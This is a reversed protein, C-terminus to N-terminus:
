SYAKGEIMAIPPNRVYDCPEDYRAMFQVKGTGIQSAQEQVIRYETEDSNIDYLRGNWM